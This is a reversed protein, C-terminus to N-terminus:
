SFSRSNPYFVGAFIVLIKLCSMVSNKKSGCDINYIATVSNKRETYKKREKCM